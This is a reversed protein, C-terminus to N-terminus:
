LTGTLNGRAVLAGVLGLVQLLGRGSNTDARGARLSDGCELVRRSQLCVALTLATVARNATACTARRCNSMQINSM